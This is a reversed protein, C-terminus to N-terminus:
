RVGYQAAIAVITKIPSHYGKQRINCFLKECENPDYRPYFQSIRHFFVSGKAGFLTAIVCGISFWDQYLVTIDIRNAEIKELLDFFHRTASKSIELVSSIRSLDTPQLLRQIPTLAEVNRVEDMKEDPGRVVPRVSMACPPKEAEQAMKVYTRAGFNVYASSDHSFGRLRPIDKCAPDLVIGADKFDRELARFHQLHQKGDVIPVLCFLGRGSASLGAYLIHEFVPLNQKLANWDEISPNEKADIDLCILGSHAILGENKRVSFLGRPTIAPMRSKILNRADKNDTKRIFDLAKLMENSPELLWHLIDVEGIPHSDTYNKFLSVWISPREKGHALMIM